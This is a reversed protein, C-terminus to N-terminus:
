VVELLYLPKEVLMVREVLEKKLTFKQHLDLLKMKNNLKLMDVKTTPM